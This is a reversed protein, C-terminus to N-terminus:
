VIPSKPHILYDSPLLCYRSHRFHRFKLSSIWFGFERAWVAWMTLATYKTKAQFFTLLAMSLDAGPRALILFTIAQLSVLESQVDWVMFM